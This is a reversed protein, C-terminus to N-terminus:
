RPWPGYAGRALLRRARGGDATGDAGFAGGGVVLRLGALAPAFRASAHAPLRDAESELWATVDAQADAGCLSLHFLAQRWARAARKIGAARRSADAFAARAAAQRGDRAAAGAYRAPAALGFATLVRAQEDLAPDTALARGLLRDGDPRGPARHGARVACLLVFGVRDDADALDRVAAYDIGYYREYLTGRLLEAAIRAAPLVEPALTGHYADAFPWTLFPARVGSREAFRNLDGLLRDPVGAGPFTRACLAALEGAEARAAARLDPARHALARIWPPRAAPDQPVPSGYTYGRRSRYAAALLAGLAPDPFGRAAHTGLLQAALEALVEASPVAGRGVHDELPAELVGSAVARVAAPVPTGAPPAGRAAEAATVPAVLPGVDPLGRDVPHEALRRRVLAALEHHAPRGAQRAQDARLRAHEPSGPRGRKAVMSDVVHRLLGAARPTLPRGAVAEELARRLVSANSKPGLHKTCRTHVTLLSAYRELLEAGDALWGPGDADARLRHALLEDEFPRWVTLAERQAEVAPRPGRDALLLAAEGATRRRVADAPASPLDAPRPAFRIEGALPRLEGVLEAAAATDGARELWAVVLLAAEDPAHLAYRGTELLSRLWARGRDTLCYAFAEGPSLGALPNPDHAHPDM